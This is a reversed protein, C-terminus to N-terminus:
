FLPFPSVPSLRKTVSPGRKTLLTNSFPESPMPLAHGQSVAGVRAAIANGSAPLLSLTVDPPPYLFEALKWSDCTFAGLPQRSSRHIAVSLVAQHIGCRFGSWPNDQAGHSGPCHPTKREKALDDGRFKRPRHGASLPLDNSWRWGSTPRAPIEKLCRHLRFPTQGSPEGWAPAAWRGSPQQQGAQGPRGGSAAGTRSPLGQM